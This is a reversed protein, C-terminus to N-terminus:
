YDNSAVLRAVVMACSKWSRHRDAAVFHHQEHCVGRFAKLGRWVELKAFLHEVPNELLWSHQTGRIKAVVLLTLSTEFWVEALAWRVRLVILKLVIDLEINVQLL